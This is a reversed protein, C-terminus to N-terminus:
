QKELEVNLDSAKGQEVTIERRAPKYGDLRFVVQYTGPDLPLRFPSQRPMKRGSIFVDAGPPNTQLQVVGQGAPIGGGGFIRKFGRFPNKGGNGGRVPDLTPAFDYSEGDKLDVTTNEEQYGPQRVMIKHSGASVSLTTPTVKGTPQGDLLIHSGPPTSKVNIKAGEETLQAGVNALKGAAVSVHRKLTVYGSKTFTVDHEGPSINKATFPTIWDPETKNGISFKAGEPQSTVRISGLDPEAATPVTVASVAAAPKAATKVLASPKKSKAAEAPPDNKTANDAPTDEKRADHSATAAPESAPVPIPAPNTTATAAQSQQENQKALNRRHMAFSVIAVLLIAMTAVGLKRKDLLGGSSSAAKQQVTVTSEISQVPAGKGGVTKSGILTAIQRTKKVIAPSDAAPQAKVAQTEAEVASLVQTAETNSGFEKYTELQKLLEAGSQFRDDPNKALAKTIIASIGPHITIDLDRPPVPAENMIKYIITTVNQGTFPKEGTVMEYLCVGYSFLDSRGDLVKGRVQEPSMYAPTGLVQGASTMGGEAKAIGFDMIKAGGQATLMINAPKIDRHIVGRKHAFDMAPCIQRSIELIMQAPIVRQQHRLAQLTVGECFEMAIYFVGQDEGADYITVVSPHNMVGALKAEHKFRRLIEEQDAGHVDLRMTKLAVTRGINPDQAKYVVGMAGRGLEGLIEYRGIKQPTNM